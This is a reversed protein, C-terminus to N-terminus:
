EQCYLLGTDVYNVGLELSRHIVEIAREVDVYEKDGITTMPLRMSGFGLRSVTYGTKGLSAYQM